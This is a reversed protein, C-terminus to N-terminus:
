VNLNTDNNNNIRKCKNYYQKILKLENKGTTLKINYNGICKAYIRM